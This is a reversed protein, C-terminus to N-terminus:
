WTIVPCINEFINDELADVFEGGIFLRIESSKKLAATYQQWDPNTLKVAEKLSM